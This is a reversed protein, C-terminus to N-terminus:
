FSNGEYDLAGTTEYELEAQERFEEYAARGCDLCLVSHTLPYYFIKESKKITRKCEKCSSTKIARTWHPDNKFYNIPM